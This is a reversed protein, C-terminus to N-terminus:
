NKYARRVIVHGSIASLLLLYALLTEQTFTPIEKTPLTILTMTEKFERITLPKYETGHSDTVSVMQTVPDFDKVVYFHNEPFKSTPEPAPDAHAVVAQPGLSAVVIGPNTTQKSVQIVIPNQAPLNSSIQKVREAASIKFAAQKEESVPLFEFKEPTERSFWENVNAIKAFSSVFIPTEPAKSLINVLESDNFGSIVFPSIAVSSYNENNLLNPVSSPIAPPVGGSHDTLEKELAFTLIPIALSGDTTTSPDIDRPSMWKLLEDYSVSVDRGNALHVVTDIFFKDHDLNYNVVEVRSKLEKYGEPTLLKSQVGGMVQCNPRGGQYLNKHDPGEGWLIKNLIVKDENFVSLPKDESIVSQTQQTPVFGLDQATKNALGWMFGSKVLAFGVLATYGFGMGVYKAKTFFSKGSRQIDNKPKVPESITSVVRIPLDRAEDSVFQGSLLGNVNFNGGITPTISRTQM